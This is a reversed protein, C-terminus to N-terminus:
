RHDQGHKAPRAADVAAKAPSCANAGENCVHKVSIVAQKGVGVKETRTGCTPCQHKAVMATERRGGKGPPQLVSVWEDRCKACLAMAANGTSTKQISPAASSRQVKALLEGGKEQALAFNISGLVGIVAILASFAIPTVFTKPAKM